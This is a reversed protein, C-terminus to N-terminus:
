MSYGLVQAKRQQKGLAEELLEQIQSLTPVEALPGTSHQGVKEMHVRHETFLVLRWLLIRFISLLVM